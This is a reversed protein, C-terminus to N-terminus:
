AECVGSASLAYRAMAALMEPSEGLSTAVRVAVGPRAAMATAVLQPLDTRVHNGAAIFVPIVVIDTVGLDALHAVAGPLDPTMLELYALEVPVMPSLRCIEDRLAHFPAAWAPSRSGHGFLVIGKKKM